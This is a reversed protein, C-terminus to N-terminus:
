VFVLMYTACDIKFYVIQRLINYIHPKAICKYMYQGYFAVNIDPQYSFIKRKWSKLFLCLVTYVFMMNNHILM